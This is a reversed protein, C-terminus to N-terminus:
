NLKRKRKWEGYARFLECVWGQEYANLDSYEPKTSAIARMLWFGVEQPSAGNALMARIKDEFLAM